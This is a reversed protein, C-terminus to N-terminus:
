APVEAIRRFDTSITHNQLNISFCLAPLLQDLETHAALTEPDVARLHALDLAERTIAELDSIDWNPSDDPPVALLIAQPAQSAPEDFNFAIGTTMQTEPIVEVWEDIWFGAVPDAPAFPQPMYAIVSLAGDPLASGAPPPLACWRAGDHVPLQAVSLAPATGAFAEAYTLVTNLRDIPRRVRAMRALWGAAAFPDGGQLAVSAGFAEDLEAANAPQLRPLARFTPGFLTDMRALEHDRLAEATAGARVFQAEDSQARALRRVVQSHVASARALLDETADGGDVAPVPIAEPLGFLAVTSLIAAVV